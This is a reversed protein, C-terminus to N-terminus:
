AHTSSAELEKFGSFAVAVGFCNESVGNETRVVRGTFSLPQDGVKVFLEVPDDQAFSLLTHFYAGVASIDRLEAASDLLGLRRSHVLVTRPLHIRELRRNDM